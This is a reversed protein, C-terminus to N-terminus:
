SLRIRLLDFSERHFCASSSFVIDQFGVQHRKLTAVSGQHELAFSFPFSIIFLYLLKAGSLLGSFCSLSDRYRLESFKHQDLM